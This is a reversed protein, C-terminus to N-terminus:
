AHFLQERSSGIKSSQTRLREKLEEWSNQFPHISQYQLRAEGALTLPFRKVRQDVVYNHTDMWGIIRVLDEEPDDDPKGSFEPTFYSWNM